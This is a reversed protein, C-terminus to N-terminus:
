LCVRQFISGLFIRSKIEPILYQQLVHDKTKLEVQVTTWTQPVPDNIGPLKIDDEDHDENHELYHVTGPNFHPFMWKWIAVFWGRNPGMWRLFESELDVEPIVGWAVGFVSAFERDRTQCEM